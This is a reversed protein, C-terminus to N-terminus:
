RIRLGREFTGRGSAAWRTARGVTGVGRTGFVSETDKWESAGMSMILRQVQEIKVVLNPDQSSRLRESMASESKLLRKGFIELRDPHM